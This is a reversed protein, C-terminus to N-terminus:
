RVQDRPVLFRTPQISTPRDGLDEDEESDEPNYFEGQSDEPEVRSDEPEWSNERAAMGRSDEMEGM